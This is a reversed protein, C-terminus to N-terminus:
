RRATADRRATSVTPSGSRSGDRWSARTTPSTRGYAARRHRQRRDARRGRRRAHQHQRAERDLTPQGDDQGAPRKRGPQRDHPLDLVSRAAHVVTLEAAARADHQTGHVRQLGARAVRVAADRGQAAPLRARGHQRDDARQRLQELHRSRRGRLHRRGSEHSRRGDPNRDRDLHKCDTRRRDHRARLHRHRVGRLLDGAIAHRLRVHRRGAVHRHRDRRDRRRARTRCRQPHLDLLEGALVPDPSDTKTISLDAAPHVTTEASAANNSCTPDHADSTSARRTRSRARRDAARVKIEVSPTPRTRSRASRAPSPGARRRAAARRHAHGVRLHCGGAAHRHPHRRHGRAARRQQASLSYTLLEGACCRTPRTASPSRAPGRGGERDHRRQGLQRRRRPDGLDSTVSAQNTIAGADQPTVKIEVTASRQDRDDRARLRRHREVRLLHGALAHRLRLDRGGPLTDTLTVGTARGASGREPGHAHLHAARRRLVPDPSDTKTLSLDVAPTSPRTRRERLQERSDPDTM